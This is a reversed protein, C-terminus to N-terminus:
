NSAHSSELQQHMRMRKVTVALADVMTRPSGHELLQDYFDLKDRDSGYRMKDGTVPEGLQKLRVYLSQWAVGLEAAALKLNMHKRYAIVEQNM